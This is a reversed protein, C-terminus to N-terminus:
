RLALFLEPVIKKEKRTSRELYIQNCNAVSLILGGQVSVKSACAECSVICGGPFIGKRVGYTHLTHSEGGGRCWAVPESLLFVWYFGSQRVWQCIEPLNQNDM